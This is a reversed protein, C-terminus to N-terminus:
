RNRKKKWSQYESDQSYKSEVHNRVLNLIMLQADKKTDAIKDDLYISIDRYYFSITEKYNLLTLYKWLVNFCEKTERNWGLLFVTRIFDTTTEIAEKPAYKVLDMLIENPKDEDTQLLKEKTLYLKKDEEKYIKRQLEFNDMSTYEETTEKIFDIQKKPFDYKTDEDGKYVIEACPGYKYWGIPLQLNFQKNIKWVIKYAQTKTPEQKAFKKILTYIAKIITEHEKKVPLGFYNNKDKYFFTRENKTEQEIVLDLASLLTLYSEATRWNIELATAIENISCPKEKLLEVLKNFNQDRVEAM